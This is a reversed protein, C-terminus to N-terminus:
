LRKNETCRSHQKFRESSEYRHIQSCFAATKGFLIKFAEQVGGALYNQWKIQLKTTYRKNSVSQFLLYLIAKM